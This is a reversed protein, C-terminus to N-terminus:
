INPPFFTTGWQPSAPGHERGMGGPDAVSVISTSLRLNHRNKKDNHGRYLNLGVRHIKVIWVKYQLHNNRWDVNSVTLDDNGHM